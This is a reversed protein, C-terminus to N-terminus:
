AAKRNNNLHKDVTAVIADVEENRMGLQGAIQQVLYDVRKRTGKLAGKIRGAKATGKSLVNLVIGWNTGAKIRNRILVM